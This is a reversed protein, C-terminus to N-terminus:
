GGRGARAEVVMSRGERSKLTVSVGRSDISEVTWGPLVEDGVRHMRGNLLAIERGERSLVATLTVKPLTEDVVVVAAPASASAAPVAPAEAHLMPSRDARAREVGALWRAAKVQDGTLAKAVPEAAGAALEPVVAAVAVAAPSERPGAQLVGRAAMSILVPALLAGATWLRQKRVRDLKM